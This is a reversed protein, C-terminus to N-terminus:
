VLLGVLNGIIDTQGVQIHADDRLVPRVDLAAFGDFYSNCHGHLAHCELDPLKDPNFNIKNATLYQL